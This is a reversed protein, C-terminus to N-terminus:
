MGVYMQTYLHKTHKQKIIPGYIYANTRDYKRKKDTLHAANKKMKPEKEMWASEDITEGNM